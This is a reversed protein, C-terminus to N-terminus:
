NGKHVFAAQLTMAQYPLSAKLRQRSKWSCSQAGRTYFIQIDVNTPQFVTTSLYSFLFSEYEATTSFDNLADSLVVNM